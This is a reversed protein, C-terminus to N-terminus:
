KGAFSSRNWWGALRDVLARLRVPRRLWHGGALDRQLRRLEANNPDVELGRCVAELAKPQMGSLLYTRALNLHNEPEDSELEVAYRCLSLGETFREQMAIGYGLYSYYLAPFELGEGRYAAAEGLWTLGERWEGARCLEIGLRLSFQLDPDPISINVPPGM